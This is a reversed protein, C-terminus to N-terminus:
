LKVSILGLAQAARHTLRNRLAEGCRVDQEGQGTEVGPDVIGDARRGAVPQNVPPLAAAIREDARGARGAAM